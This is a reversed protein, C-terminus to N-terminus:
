LVCTYMLAYKKKELLLRCVLHGRSQLESTHEESRVFLPGSWETQVAQIIEGLLRYRNERSGGYQDTRQNTLPSLFQNILYGHAAHIEIIDFGSEKARKAGNQFSQITTEIQEITMEM